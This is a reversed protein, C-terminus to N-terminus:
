NLHHRVDTMTMAQHKLKSPFQKLLKLLHQRPSPTTLQYDEDLEKESEIINSLNLECEQWLAYFFPFHLFFISDHIKSSMKSAVRSVVSFYQSMMGGQQFFGM